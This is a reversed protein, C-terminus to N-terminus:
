ATEAEVTTQAFNELIEPVPVCFQIFFLVTDGQNPNADSKERQHTHPDSDQEELDRRWQSRGRSWKSGGCSKLKSKSASKCGSGAKSKLAFGYGVKRESASASGAECHPEPDM